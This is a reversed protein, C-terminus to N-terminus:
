ENLVKKVKVDRININPLKELNLRKIDYEIVSSSVSDILVYNPELPYGNQVLVLDYCKRVVNRFEPRSSIGTDRPCKIVYM